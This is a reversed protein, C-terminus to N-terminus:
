GNNAYSKIRKVQMYWKRVFFRKALFKNREEWNEFLSKMLILIKKFEVGEKLQEVGAKTLRGRLKEAFDRLKLWNRLRSKVQFLLTNNVFMDYKDSLDRWNKRAVATKYKNEIWKAARLKASDKKSGRCNDRWQLLKRRLYNKLKEDETTFYTGMIDLIRRRIRDWDGWIKKLNTFFDRARAVPIANSVRISQCVDGLTTVNNTLLKKDITKLANDLKGDREKM